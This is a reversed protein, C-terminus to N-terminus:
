QHLVLETGFMSGNWFQRFGRYVSLCSEASTATFDAWFAWVISDHPVNHNEVDFVYDDTYFPNFSIPSEDTYTFYVGDAGKTKRHILYLVLCCGSISWHSLTRTQKEIEM